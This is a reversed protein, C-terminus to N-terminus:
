PTEWTPKVGKVATTDILVKTGRPLKRNTSASQVFIDYNAHNGPTVKVHQNPPLGIIDRAGQGGYIAKGGKEVLLVQKSPQVKEPKMLQYYAQGMVYPKGTKGEVFPRVEVEKDVTAVKFHSRIDDLKKQLVQSNVHSLDTTVPTYLSSYTTAGASRANFYSETAAVTDIRTQEFGQTTQEWETINDSPVGFSNALTSKYGRPVQFGFTWNGESQHSGILKAFSTRNYRISSNECGDTLTFIIYADEPKGYQKLQELALAVGDFMPTSGDPHYNIGSIKSAEVPAQLVTAGHGGFGVVCVLASPDNKVIVDLQSKFMSPVSLAFTQMSGSEDIAFAILTRGKSKLKVTSRRM